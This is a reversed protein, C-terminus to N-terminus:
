DLTVLSQLRELRKPGFGAIERLDDLSRFRGGLKAREQLIAAALGPGIGPLEELTAEDARNLDIRQGPALTKAAARRRRMTAAPLPSPSPPPMTEKFTPVYCLEGDQLLEALDLGKLQADKRPGGAREILEAVRSGIPMWYVGPHRVAGQVQVRVKSCTVIQDARAMPTGSLVLLLICLLWPRM